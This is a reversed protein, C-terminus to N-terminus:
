SRAPVVGSHLSRIREVGNLDTPSVSDAGYACLLAFSYRSALKNWLAEVELAAHTRGDRWLLDVMEGFARVTVYRRGRTVKELVNGVTADFLEANPHSGEMFSALTDQADLWVLNNPSLADVDVSRKVLEDRIARAHAPTAIVLAPQASQIGEALFAAVSSAMRAHDEYFQVDHRAQWARAGSDGSRRNPSSSNLEM